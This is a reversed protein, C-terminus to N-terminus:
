LQGEGVVKGHGGEEETWSIGLWGGVFCATPYLVPHCRLSLQLRGPLLDREWWRFCVVLAADQGFACVVSCFFLCFSASLMM